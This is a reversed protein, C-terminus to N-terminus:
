EILTINFIGVTIDVLPTTVASFVFTTTYTIVGTTSDTTSTTKCSPMTIAAKVMRNANAASSNFPLDILPTQGEDVKCDTRVVTYTSGNWGDAALHIPIFGGQLFAEGTILEGKDSYAKYGSLIQLSSAANNAIPAIATGTIKDGDPNYAEYGYLLENSTAPKNLPGMATGNIVEGESNYVSYGKFIKNAPAQNTLPDLAVGTEIAAIAVAMEAPTYTESNGLKNRIAKAIETYNSDETFGIAM